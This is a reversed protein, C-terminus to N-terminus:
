GSAPVLYRDAGEERWNDLFERLDGFREKEELVLDAIGDLFALDNEDPEYSRSMLRGTEQYAYETKDLSFLDRLMNGRIYWEGFEGEELSFGCLRGSVLGQRHLKWVAAGCFFSEGLLDLPDIGKGGIRHDKMQIKGMMPDVRIWAQNKDNWYECIWHDEFWGNSLYTSFGCRCRAPIDKERLVSCLFMSFHRCIGVARDEPERSVSLPQGSISRIRGIFERLSRAQRSSIREEPFDLGFLELDGPHVILGRIAECIGAIDDPLGSLEEPDVKTREGQTRYFDLYKEENM